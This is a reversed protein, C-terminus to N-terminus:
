RNDVQWIHLQNEFGSEVMWIEDEGNVMEIIAAVFLHEFFFAVTRAEDSDACPFIFRTVATTEDVLYRTTPDLVDAHRSLAMARYRGSVHYISYGGFHDSIWACQRKKYNPDAEGDIRPFNSELEVTPITRLQAEISELYFLTDLACRLHTENSLPMFFEYVAPHNDLFTRWTQSPPEGTKKKPMFRSVSRESVEIGLKLLEGHIKPAGWGVNAAVMRRILDKVEPSIENHAQARSRSKWRWFLRFGARHWRVVTDPKVLILAEAWRAWVQSLLIWFARDMLRPRPKPTSRHLSALQQRLALNELALESRDRVASRLARLLCLLITFMAAIM